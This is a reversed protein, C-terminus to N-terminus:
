FGPPGEGGEGRRESAWPPFRSFIIGVIKLSNELASFPVV